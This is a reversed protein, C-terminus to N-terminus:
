YFCAQLILVTNIVRVPGKGFEFAGNSYVCWLQVVGCWVFVLKCTCVCVYICVYVRMCEHMCVYVCWAFQFKRCFLVQMTVTMLYYITLVLYKFDILKTKSCQNVIQLDVTIPFNEPKVALIRPKLSYVILWKYLVHFM